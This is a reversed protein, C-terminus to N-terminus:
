REPGPLPDVGLKSAWADVEDRVADAVPVGRALAQRRRELASQGPLRVAAVGPAPEAGRCAAAIWGSQRLFPAIGAFAEPEFVQVFVSAGWIDPAEARGYGSLGQTLAEVMLALGYGKHGHDRGGTPLITGGPEAFLVAPDDGPRGERDQVWAGPFRRGAAHLRESLANTTISTSMDILIPDGGTPLGVALPDPTFVASVGGHPAVSRSSPDSCAIMAVQGGATARGLYAQLCGIHHSRRVAVAALGHRRARECARDVASATLWIGPLWGGDWVLAAGRDSLVEPEGAPTMAGSELEELYSGLLELGHTDHGLMDAEVLLEAVTGAKAREM